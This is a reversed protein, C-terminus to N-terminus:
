HQLAAGHEAAIDDGLLQRQRAEPVIGAAGGMDDQLVARHHPVVLKPEGAVPQLVDMGLDDAVRREEVAAPQRLVVVDLAGDLLEGLERLLIGISVGLVLVHERADGVEGAADGVPAVAVGREDVAIPEDAGRAACRDTRGGAELHDVRRHCNGNRIRGHERLKRGAVAQLEGDVTGLQVVECALETVAALEPQMAEGGIPSRAAAAAWRGRLARLDLEFLTPDDAPLPPNVAPSPTAPSSSPSAM